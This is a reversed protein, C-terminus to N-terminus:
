LFVRVCQLCADVHGKCSGRQSALPKPPSLGDKGWRSRCWQPQLTEPLPAAQSLVSICISDLQKCIFDQDMEMTLVSYWCSYTLWPHTGYYYLWWLLNYCFNDSHQLNMSSLTAEYLLLYTFSNNTEITCYHQVRRSTDTNKWSINSLKPTTEM